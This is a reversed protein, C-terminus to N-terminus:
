ATRYRAMYSAGLPFDASAAMARHAPQHKMLVRGQMASCLVIKAM